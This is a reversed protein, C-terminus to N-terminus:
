YCQQINSASNSYESLIAHPCYVKRESSFISYVHTKISLVNKIFVHAFSVCLILCVTCQQFTICLHWCPKAITCGASASNGQLVDQGFVSSPWVCKPPHTTSTWAYLSTQLPEFESSQQRVEELVMEAKFCVVLHPLQLWRENVSKCSTCHQGENNWTYRSAPLPNQFSESPKHLYHNSNSFFHSCYLTHTHKHTIRQASLVQIWYALTQVEPRYGFSM